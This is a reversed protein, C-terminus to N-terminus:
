SDAAPCLLGDGAGPAPAGEIAEELKMEQMGAGAM